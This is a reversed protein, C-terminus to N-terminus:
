HDFIFPQKKPLSGNGGKEEQLLIGGCCFEVDRGGPSKMM